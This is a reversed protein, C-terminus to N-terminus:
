GILGAVLWGVQCGVLWGVSGSSPVPHALTWQGHRAPPPPFFSWSRIVQLANPLPYDYALDRVRISKITFLHFVHKMFYNLNV